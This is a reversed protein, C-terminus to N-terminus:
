NRMDLDRTEEQQSVMVLKLPREGYWKHSIDLWKTRMTKSNHNRQIRRTITFISRKIGAFYFNLCHLSWFHSTQYTILVSQYYEVDCHMLFDYKYNLTKSSFNFFFCFFFLFILSTHTFIPFFIIFIPFNVCSRAIEYVNKSYNGKRWLVNICVMGYPSAQLVNGDKWKGIFYGQLSKGGYGGGPKVKYWSVFVIAKRWEDKSDDFGDAHRCVKSSKCGIPHWISANPHRPAM